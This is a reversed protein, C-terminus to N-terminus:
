KVPIQKYLPLVEIGELTIAQSAVESVASIVATPFIEESSFAKGLLSVALVVGQTDFRDIPNNMALVSEISPCNEDVIIERHIYSNPLLYGRTDTLSAENEAFTEDYPNWAGEPTILDVNRDKLDGM